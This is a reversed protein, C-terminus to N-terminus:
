VSLFVELRLSAGPFDCKIIQFHLLASSPKGPLHVSKQTFRGELCSDCFVSGVVVVSDEPSELPKGAEQLEAGQLAAGVQIFVQFCSFMLMLAALVAGPAM